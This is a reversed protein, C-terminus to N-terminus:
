LIDNKIKYKNYFYIVISGTVIVLIVIIIWLVVHLRNVSSKVIKNDSINRVIDLKLRVVGALNLKEQTQQSIIVCVEKKNDKNDDTISFDDVTLNKLLLPNIKKIEELIKEKNNQDVISIQIIRKDEPIITEINKVKPLNLDTNENINMSLVVQESLKLKEKKNEPIRVIIKNDNEIILYERSLDKLLSPNIKKIEELIKDRNNKDAISIEVIRKDEPIVTEINKIHNSNTDAILITQFSNFFVFIFILVFVKLNIKNIM